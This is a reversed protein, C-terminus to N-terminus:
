CSFVKLVSNFQMDTTLVSTMMMLMTTTMLLKVKGKM